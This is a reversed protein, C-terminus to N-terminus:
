PTYGAAHYNPDDDMIARHINILIRDRTAEIRASDGSALAENWEAAERDRDADSRTV